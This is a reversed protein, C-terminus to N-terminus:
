EVVWLGPDTLAWESLDGSECAVVPTGLTRAERVVTPAGESRSASVLLDAAALWTLAETRPLNGTFVASPFRLSLRAHEPGDGIVVVRCRPLLSLAALATATRKGPVLRGIVVILRESAPVNLLRRAADRAPTGEVNIPSPAVRFELNPVCRLDPSLCRALEASVFRLTAGRERLVRLIHIRVPRPLRRFLRVDSGHAVVELAGGANLAAPYGCPILWHAIVKDPEPLARMARRLAAVYRIALLARYPRARIRALAGPWSFLDDCGLARVTLADARADLRTRPGPCLVTVRNGAAALMRAETEVFHGSPDGPARPYSTTLIVVNM